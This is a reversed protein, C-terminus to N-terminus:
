SKANKRHFGHTSFQRPCSCTSKLALRAVADSNLVTRSLKAIEKEVEDLAALIAQWESGKSRPVSGGSRPRRVRESKGPPPLDPMGASTGGSRLPCSSPLLSGSLWAGSNSVGPPGFPRRQTLRKRTMGLSSWCDGVQDAYAGAREGVGAGM